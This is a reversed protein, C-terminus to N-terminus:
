CGVVATWSGRVSRLGAFTLLWCAILRDDRVHERFEIAQEPTWSSM